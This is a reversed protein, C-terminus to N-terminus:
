GDRQARGTSRRWRRWLAIKVARLYGSAVETEGGSVAVVSGPKPTGDPLWRAAGSRGRGNALEDYIRQMGEVTRGIDFHEGIRRQGGTAIRRRFTEDALLRTIAEALAGAEGPPVLLGSRQDEIVEPAAGCASAVVPVRAAMAEAMVLGFGEGAVNGLPITPMCVVDCDSMYRWADQRYGAFFVQKELGLESVLNGLQVTLGVRNRLTENEDGVIAFTVHPLTHAIKAAARIFYEHGKLLVISGFLAVLKGDARIGLERRLAGREQLRAIQRSDVGNYVVCAKRQVSAPLSRQVFGSNCAIADALHRMGWVALGASVGTKAFSGRWHWICPRRAMRCALGALLHHPYYNVDVIDIRHRRIAMSLRLVSILATALKGTLVAPNWRSKKPDSLPLLCRGMLTVTEDCLPGLTDTAPGQGLFIGVATIRCRDLHSLLLRISERVGYAEGGDIFFGVRIPLRPKDTM